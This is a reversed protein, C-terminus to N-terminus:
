KKKYTALTPISISEPEVVTEFGLKDEESQLWDAIEERTWRHNDNLHAVIGAISADAPCHVEPCEALSNELYPFLTFISVPLVSRLDCAQSAAGLACTGRESYM